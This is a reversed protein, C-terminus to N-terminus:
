IYRLLYSSYLIEQLNFVIIVDRNVHKQKLIIEGKCPSEHMIHMM